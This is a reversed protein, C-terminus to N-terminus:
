SPQLALGRPPPRPVSMEERFDHARVTATALPRRSFRRTSCALLHSIGQGQSQASFDRRRSAWRRERRHSADGGSRPADQQAGAAAAPQQPSILLFTSPLSPCILLRSRAVDGFYFLSLQSIPIERCAFTVVRSRHGHLRLALHPRQATAFPSPHSPASSVACFRAPSPLRSLLALHPRQSTAPRPCVFFLPVSRYSLPRTLM